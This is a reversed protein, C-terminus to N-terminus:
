SNADMGGEEDRALFKEAYEAVDTSAGVVGALTDMLHRIVRASTLLADKIVEDDERETALRELETAFIEVSKM